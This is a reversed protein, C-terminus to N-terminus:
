VADFNAKAKKGGQAEPADESLRVNPLGADRQATLRQVEARIDALELTGFAKKTRDAAARGAEDNGSVSLTLAHLDNLLDQRYTRGDSAESALAQLRMATVEKPELGLATAHAELQTQGGRTVADEIQTDLLAQAETPTADIEKVSGDPLKLRLKVTDEGTTAALSPPPPPAGSDPQAAAKEFTAQMDKSAALQFRTPIPPASIPSPASAALVGGSGADGGVRTGPYAGRYVLSGEGFQVNGTTWVFCLKQVSVNTEPDTITYVRGRWYPSDYYDGGTISCIAKDYFFGISAENIVGGDILGVLRQGEADNLVYFWTDLWLEQAPQGLDPTATFAGEVVAATYFSGLPTNDTVHASLVPGGGDNIQSALLRLDGDPSRTFYSTLKNGYLRVPRVLIQEATLAAKGRRAQLANIQELHGDPLATSAGDALVLALSFAAQHRTM